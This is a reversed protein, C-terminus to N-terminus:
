HSTTLSTQRRGIGLEENAGDAGIKADKAIKALTLEGDRGDQEDM